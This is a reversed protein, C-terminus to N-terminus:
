HYWWHSDYSPCAIKTNVNVELTEWSGMYIMDFRINVREPGLVLENGCLWHGNGHGPTGSVLFGM